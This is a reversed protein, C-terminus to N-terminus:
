VPDVDVAYSGSQLNYVLEIMSVNDEALEIVQLDYVSANFEDVDVESIFIKCEVVDDKALINFYLYAKYTTSDCEVRLDTIFEEAIPVYIEKSYPCYKKSLITMVEDYDYEDFKSSDLVDIEDEECVESGDVASALLDVIYTMDASSLNQNHLVEKIQKEDFYYKNTKTGKLM